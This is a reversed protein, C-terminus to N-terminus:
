APGMFGLNTNTFNGINPFVNVMDAEPLGFWRALTAAYQEISATPIWRGRPAEYIDADDPGGLALTPYPTGNTTNIGYLDSATIGGGVVLQHNGWAHDSGVSAGTGAPNMTRGFDSMTFQTVKDAIGQVAMEDYFARMAQSMQSLLLSQNPMQLNHTDFGMIQCFFIQRNVNLDGRKKILRAVQKLQNGINSNPFQVTVEQSTQLSANITIAQDSIHSAVAILESSLDQTRLSNLAAFQAQSDPSQDYGQPNLVQSLEIPAAALALPQTVEGATFLQAGAVSTIMPVLSTPNDAATRRDSLRGCWGTVVPRDSRGTQHQAAQDSHSYMSYPKPHTFDGMQTRTTPRVLSGVNGVIALKNQGWLEYLGNNGGVGLAPHFGYALNGLRPIAFPLPVSQALALGYPQRLAYYDEYSSLNKDAHLPIVTNNGDNGGLLFICVLARYDNPVFPESAKQALASMQGFHGMQTALATMTLAGSKVLFERRSSKM